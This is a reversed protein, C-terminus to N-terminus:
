CSRGVGWIGRQDARYTEDLDAHRIDAESILVTFGRAEWEPIRDVPVRVVAAVHPAVYRYVLADPPRRPTM